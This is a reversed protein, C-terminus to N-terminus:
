ERALPFGDQDKATSTLAFHIGAQGAGSNLAAPIVDLHSRIRAWLIKKEEHAEHRRPSDQQEHAKELL